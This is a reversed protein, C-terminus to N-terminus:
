PTLNKEGRQLQTHRLAISPRSTPIFTSLHAADAWIPGTRGRSSMEALSHRIAPYSQPNLRDVCCVVIRLLFLLTADHGSFWPNMVGFSVLRQHPIAPLSSGKWTVKGM